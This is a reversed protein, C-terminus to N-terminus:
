GPGGPSWARMKSRNKCVGKVPTEGDREPASRSAVGDVGERGLAAAIGIKHIAIPDVATIAPATTARTAHKLIFEGVLWYQEPQLSTAKSLYLTM